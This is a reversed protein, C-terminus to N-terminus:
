AAREESAQYVFGAIIGVLGFVIFLIGLVWILLETTLFPFWILYVGILISIIGVIVILIRFGLGEGSATAAVALEGLGAIFAWIAILIPIAVLLVTEHLLALVGIIIGIIGLLILGARYGAERHAMTGKIITAISLLVILAGLLYGLINYVVDPWIVMVAGFIISILGQILMIWWNMQIYQEEVIIVGETM